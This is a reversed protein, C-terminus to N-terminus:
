KIKLSNKFLSAMKIFEHGIENFRSTFERNDNNLMGLKCFHNSIINLREGLSEILKIIECDKESSESNM